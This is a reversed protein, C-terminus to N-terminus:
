VRERCSARGIEHASGGRPRVPVHRDPQARDGKSFWVELPMEDFIGRLIGNSLHTHCNILGPMILRGNVSRYEVDKPVAGLDSSAGVRHIRGDRIWVFGSEYARREEDMTLVIADALILDKAEAASERPQEISEASLLGTGPLAGALGIAAGGKLFDKRTM